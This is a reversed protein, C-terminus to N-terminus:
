VQGQDEIAARIFDPLLDTMMGIVAQIDPWRLAGLSVPDLGTMRGVLEVNTSIRGEIFDQVDWLAPPAVTVRRLPVNAIVVPFLLRYSREGNSGVYRAEPRPPAPRPAPTVTSEDDEAPTESDDFAFGVVPEGNQGATNGDLPRGVDEPASAGIPDPDGSPIFGEPAIDSPSLVTVSM